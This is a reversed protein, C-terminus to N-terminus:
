QALLEDQRIASAPPMREAQALGVQPSLEAVAAEALDRSLERRLQAGIQEFTPKEAERRDELKIVHWGYTTQVPESVEGPALAYAAEGFPAAMQEKVFYGLDGGRPGSPGTSKAKAVDAFDAGADIEAKVAIAAEQTPVLIHRARVEEAAPANTITEDYRARLADDTVQSDVARRYYASSLLATRIEDLRGAVDPVSALGANEAALAFAAVVPENLGRALNDESLVLGEIAAFGAEAQPDVAGGLQARATDIMAAVGPRLSEVPM